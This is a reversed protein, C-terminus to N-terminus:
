PIECPAAGGPIGREASAADEDPGFRVLCSALSVLLCLGSREALFFALESDSPQSRVRTRNRAYRSVRNLTWCPCGEPPNTGSIASALNVCNM